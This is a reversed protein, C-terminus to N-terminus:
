DGQVRQNSLLADIYTKEKLEYTWKVSFFGKGLIKM